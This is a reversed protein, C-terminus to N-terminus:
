KKVSRARRAPVKTVTIGDETQPGPEPVVAATGADPATSGKKRGLGIRKALASRMRAYGPAVMPYDSPLGWRERYDAPTLGFRLQIYRKLMKMKAGDELCVIYDPFVSKRVPVAPTRDPEAPESAGDLGSLARYVSQILQPLENAAVQNHGLHASVVRATHRLVEPRPQDSM